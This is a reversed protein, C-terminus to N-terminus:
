KTARRILNIGIAIAGAAHALTLVLGIWGIAVSMDSSETMMAASYTWARVTVLPLATVLYLVAFSATLKKM